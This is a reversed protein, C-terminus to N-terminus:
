KNYKDFVKNYEIVAKTFKSKSKDTWPISIHRLAEQAADLQEKQKQYEKMQENLSFWLAKIAQLSDKVTFASDKEKWAAQKGAPAM